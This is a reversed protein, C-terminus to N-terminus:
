LALKVVIKTFNLPTDLHKGPAHADEPFVVYCYGAPVTVPISDGTYLGYDQEQNFEGQLTLSDTPAWGMVESGELIYQIDLFKAHAELVAGELPKSSGSSVVVKGCSLPYTAPEWNPLKEITEIAEELGPIVAAYRRLEKFPCLIM